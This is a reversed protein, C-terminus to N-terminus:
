GKPFKQLINRHLHEAAFLSARNGAHGDFVAYYGMRSSSLKSNITEHEISFDVLFTFHISHHIHM